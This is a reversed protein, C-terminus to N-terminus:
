QICVHYPSVYASAPFFNTMGDFCNSGNIAFGNFEVVKGSVDFYEFHLTTKAGNQSWTGTYGPETFGISGNSNMTTM